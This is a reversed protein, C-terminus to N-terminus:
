LAELEPKMARIFDFRILVGNIFIFVIVLLPFGIKLILGLDELQSSIPLLILFSDLTVLVWLIVSGLSLRLQCGIMTDTGSQYVIRYMFAFFM